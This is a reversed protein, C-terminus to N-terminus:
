VKYLDFFALSRLIENLVIPARTLDAPGNGKDNLLLKYFLRFDSEQGNQAIAKLLFSFTKPNALLAKLNESVGGELMQSSIEQVYSEVHNNEFGNKQFALDVGNAFKKFLDPSFKQLQKFDKHQQAQDPNRKSTDVAREFLKHYWKNAQEENKFEFECNVPCYGSELLSSQSRILNEFPIIPCSELEKEEVKDEIPKIEIKPEPKVEEQDNTRIEIKPEPKKKIEERPLQILNAYPSFGKLANSSAVEVKKPEEKKAERLYKIYDDLRKTFGKLEYNEVRITDASEDGDYGEYTGIVCEVVASVTLILNKLSRIDLIILSRGEHSNMYHKFEGSVSSKNFEWVNIQKPFEEELTERAVNLAKCTFDINTVQCNFRSTLSTYSTIRSASNYLGCLLNNVAKRKNADSPIIQMGVWVKQPNQPESIGMKVYPYLGEKLQEEDMQDKGQAIKAYFNNVTHKCSDGFFLHCYSTSEM